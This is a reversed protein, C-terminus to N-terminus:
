QHERQRKSLLTAKKPLICALPDPYVIGLKANVNLYKPVLMMLTVKQLANLKNDLTVIYKDRGIIDTKFLLLCDTSPNYSYNQRKDPSYRSQFEEHSFDLGVEVLKGIFGQRDEDLCYIVAALNRANVFFAPHRSFNSDFFTEFIRNYPLM